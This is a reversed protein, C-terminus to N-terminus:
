VDLLSWHGTVMADVRGKPGLDDKDHATKRENRTFDYVM